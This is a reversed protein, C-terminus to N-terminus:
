VCVSLFKGIKKKKQKQRSLLDHACHLMIHEVIHEIIHPVSKLSLLISWKHLMNHLFRMIHEYCSPKPILNHEYKQLPICLLQCNLISCSQVPGVGALLPVEVGLLQPIPSPLFCLLPLSLPPFCSRM